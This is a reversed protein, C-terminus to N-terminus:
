YLIGVKVGPPVDNCVRLDSMEDEYERALGSRYHFLLLAAAHDKKYGHLDKIDPHSTRLLAEHDDIANSILGCPGSSISQSRRPRHQGSTAHSSDGPAKRGAGRRGVVSAIDFTAEDTLPAASKTKRSRKPRDSENRDKHRDRQDQKRTKRSQKPRDSEDRDKHRGRRCQKLRGRQDRGSQDRGSLDRGIRNQKARKRGAEFVVRPLFAYPFLAPFFFSPPTTRLAHIHGLFMRYHPVCTERQQRLGRM